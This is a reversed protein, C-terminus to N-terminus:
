TVPKGRGLRGRFWLYLGALGIIWGIGGLIDNFRVKGDAADYAELLPTIQRAVAKDVSQEILKVTEPTLAAAPAAAATAEAAAPSAAAPEAAESQYAVTVNAFHGDGGNITLTYRGPAPPAYSYGGDEGTKLHALDKGSDDTVAIEAGQPRGGGIYFGYGTITDGAAHAFLKLRHASAPSAALTLALAIVTAISHPRTM